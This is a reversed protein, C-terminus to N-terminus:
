MGQRQMGGSQMGGGQMGGGQMDNSMGGRNMMKKKKMKKRASLDTAYSATIGQKSVPASASAPAGCVLMLSLCSAAIAINKM